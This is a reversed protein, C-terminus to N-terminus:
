GLARRHKVDFQMVSLLGTNGGALSRTIVRPQLDLHTRTVGLVALWAEYELTICAAYDAVHAGPRIAGYLQVEIRSVCNGLWSASAAWKGREDFTTVESSPSFVSFVKHKFNAPDINIGAAYRSPTFGAAVLAASIDSLITPVSIDSASM